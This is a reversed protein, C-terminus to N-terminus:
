SGLGSGEGSDPPEEEKKWKLATKVAEARRKMYELARKAWRLETALIALGIPIVVIAPGPFVIMLLGVILVAFGVILRIARWGHKLPGSMWDRLSM